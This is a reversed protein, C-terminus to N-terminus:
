GVIKMGHLLYGSMFFGETRFGGKVVCNFVAQETSASVAQRAM